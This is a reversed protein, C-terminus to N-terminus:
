LNRKKAIQKLDNYLLALQEPNTQNSELHGNDGHVGDVSIGHKLITYIVENELSDEYYINEMNWNPFNKDIYNNIVEYTIKPIVKIESLLLMLKIM